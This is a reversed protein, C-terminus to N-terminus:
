WEQWMNAYWLFDFFVQNVGSLTTKLMISTIQKAMLFQEIVAVTFWSIKARNINPTQYSETHYFSIEEVYSSDNM